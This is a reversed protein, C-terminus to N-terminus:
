VVDWALPFEAIGQLVPMSLEPKIEGDIRPNRPQM